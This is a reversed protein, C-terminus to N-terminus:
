TNPPGCNCSSQCKSLCCPGERSWDRYPEGLECLCCSTEAPCHAVCKNDEGITCWPSAQGRGNPNCAASAGYKNTICKPVIGDQEECRKDYSSSIGPGLRINNYYSFIIIVLIITLAILLYITSKKM